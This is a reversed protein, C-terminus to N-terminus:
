LINNTVKQFDSRKEREWKNVPPIVPIWILLLFLCSKILYNLENIMKLRPSCVRNAPNSKPSHQPPATQKILRKLESTDAEHYTSCSRNTKWKWVTLFQAPQKWWDQDLSARLIVFLCNPAASSGGITWRSNLFIYRFIPPPIWRQITFNNALTTAITSMSDSFDKFDSFTPLFALNTLGLSRHEGLKSTTEALLIQLRWSCAKDSQNMM